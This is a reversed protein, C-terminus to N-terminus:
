TAERIKILPLLYKASKRRMLQACARVCAIENSKHATRYNHEAFIADLNMLHLNESLDQTHKM